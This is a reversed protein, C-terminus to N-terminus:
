LTLEDVSGLEVDDQGRRRVTFGREHAIVVTEAGLRQAHTLQGKLSRAAYDIDAARGAARLKALARLV